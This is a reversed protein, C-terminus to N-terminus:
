NLSKDLIWDNISLICIIDLNTCFEQIPSSYKRNNHIEQMLIEIELSTELEM